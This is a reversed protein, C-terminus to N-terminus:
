EAVIPPPEVLWDRGAWCRDKYRQLFPQDQKIAKDIEVNCDVLDKCFGLRVIKRRQRRVHTHLEMESISYAEWELCAESNCCFQRKHVCEHLNTLVTAIFDNCTECKLDNSGLYTRAGLCGRICVTEPPRGTTAFFTNNWCTANSPMFQMAADFCAKEKPPM